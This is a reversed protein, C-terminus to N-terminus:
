LLVVYYDEYIPSQNFNNFNLNFKHIIEFLALQQEINYINFTLKIFSEKDNIKFSLPLYNYELYVTHFDRINLLLNDYVIKPVKKVKKEKKLVVIDYEANYVKM